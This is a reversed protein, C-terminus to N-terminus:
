AATSTRGVSTAVIPRVTPRGGPIRVTDSRVAALTPRLAVTLVMGNARAWRQVTSLRPDSTGGELDSIASQKTGMRQALARQSVGNGTRIELLRAVLQARAAADEYAAAFEPDVAQETLFSDLDDDTADDSRMSSSYVHDTM